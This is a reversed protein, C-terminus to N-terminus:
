ATKIGISSYFGSWADPEPNGSAYLNMAEPALRLLWDHFRTWYARPGRVERWQWATHDLEPYRRWPPAMPVGFQTFYGFWSEPEAHGDAFDAQAGPTQRLFWQEFQALYDEGAGM